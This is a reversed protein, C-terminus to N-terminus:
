PFRRAAALAVPDCEHEQHITGPIRSVEGSTGRMTLVGLALLYTRRGNAQAAAESAVPMADLEATHREHGSGAIGRIVPRDCRDCRDREVWGM